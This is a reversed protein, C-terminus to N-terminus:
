KGRDGSVGPNYNPKSGVRERMNMVGYEYEKRYYESKATEGETLLLRYAVHYVLLSTYEQLKNVGNFPEDTTIAMATPQAVYYVKLTGLASTSNPWPYVGISEPQAPDIFYATPTGGTGEWDSNNTAADREILTIEKLNKRDKTVRTAVIFDSPLTYYTTGVALATSTSKVNGWGAVNVQEQAQNLFTTLQADTFRPRLTSTDRLVIRVQSRLDDLTAAEALPLFGLIFFLFAAVYRYM